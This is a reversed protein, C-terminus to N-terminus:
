LKRIVPSSMPHGARSPQRTNCECFPRSSSLGYKPGSAVFAGLLTVLLFAIM